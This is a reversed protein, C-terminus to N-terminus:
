NGSHQLNRVSNELQLLRRNIQLRYSDMSKLASDYGALKKNIEASNDKKSTSALAETQKKLQDLQSQWTATSSLQSMNISKIQSTLSSVSTNLAEIQKTEKNQEDSDVKNRWKLNAIDKKTNEAVTQLTSLKKTQEKNAQELKQQTQALSKLQNSIQTTTKSTTQGSNTIAGSIQDMQSVMQNIQSQTKELRTHMVDLQWAGGATLMLIILILFVIAKRPTGASPKNPKPSPKKFATSPTQEKAGIRSTREDDSLSFSPLNDLDNNHDNVQM